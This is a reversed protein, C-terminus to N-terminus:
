EDRPHCQMEGFCRYVLMMSGLSIDWFIDTKMTVVPLPGFGM